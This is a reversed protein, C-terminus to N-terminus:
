TNLFFFDLARRIVEEQGAGHKRQYAAILSQQEFNLWVAIRKRRDLKRAEVLRAQREASSM